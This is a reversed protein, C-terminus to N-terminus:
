PKSDGEWVLEFIPLSAQISLLIEERTYLRGKGIGPCRMCVEKWSFLSRMNSFWFPFTRCQLPRVPYIVCGNEFFVCRGDEAERVVFGDQFPNLYRDKLLEPSIDLFEAMLLIEDQDAYVIGPEGTCCGGCRLCQFRVGEDFFYPRDQLAHM